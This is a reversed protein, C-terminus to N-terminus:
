PFFNPYTNMIETYLCNKNEETMEEIILKIQQYNWSCHKHLIKVNESRNLALEM